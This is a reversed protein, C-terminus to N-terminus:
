RDNKAVELNPAGHEAWTPRAQFACYFIHTAERLERLQREASERDLLDVSINRAGNDFEPTRRSLGVVDWGRARLHRVLNRGIVGLAGVVVAQRKEVPM